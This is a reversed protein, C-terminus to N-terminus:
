PVDLNLQDAMKIDACEKFMTVLEPVNTFKLRTKMRWDSGSPSIEAETSKRTFNGAWADFSNLGTEKLLDSQLYKMTTYMESLANTVPTGTSFVVGKSNTKEDLYQCKMYLDQTKQVDANTSLGSVNEMKTSVYLNKFEHAEDVFLKDVGLEEFTVANDKVTGNTLKELRDRLKAKIAELQKVTYSKSDTENAADLAAMVENIQNRIFEEERKSSLPIKILQSHGIIVADFNGTAIRACMQRRKQPSFDDAKAVLINANPYLKMFDSGIQETLHNPVVFMSKNHLGLRKGEMATAIMEFTKGAGVQHAFLTNGGFLAHAVANKQHPKLTIEPNSGFFNLYSGDYERPRIGNFKENYTKVLENRREPDAFIWKKFAANIQKVKDEAAKTEKELIMTKKSGTVSDSVTETVAVSKANLIKELLEYANYDKTGFNKTSKLSNDLRANKIKWSGKGSGSYNVTIANPNEQAVNSDYEKFRTPTEFLEYMFQQIVKTDIWTMGLQMDIETAKLPKPIVETLAAINDAYEPNESIKAEAQAIKKYINGSLYEDSTQYVTNTETSLEPVPFIDGHLDDVIKNREFGTLQEMYDFDIRGKESMSLILAEHSTEVHEAVKHPRITRETFIETKGIFQGDKLKELSQLLPLRVDNKFANSNQAKRSIGSANKSNPTEIPNIRGFKKVFKDYKLTLEAQLSKIESDPRDEVQAQLLERVTKGMGCMAKRREAVVGHQESEKLPILNDDVRYYLKDDVVTYTLNEIDPTATLYLDTQKEDLEQQFELPVYEGKIHKMANHLQEKLDAGQIPTCVISGFRGNDSLNGLVMDPNDAFYSNIKLGDANEKTHVWDCSKDMPMDSINLPKERKKLFIIDTSTQTGANKQFANNPLRVAGMLEAKQALMQRVKIDEKDLTGTSTIFAVVGGSRVSDLSKAFFYDHILMGSYAKTKDNVGHNGFPVNGVALDFSGKALKIKEFGNIAIDAEPYLKQAIRGSISDIEIGALNSNERMKDPMTGFFNGVGMSPELIEGGKFGINSLGEYIAQTIIPSTYFADNVTSRAAEYEEETLLSKLENFEKRWSAEREDFAEQLGGWGVYKSMIEQEEPTARRDESEIQKLTQIALLNNKFKTKAGGEGLNYDTITFKQPKEPANIESESHLPEDSKAQIVSLIEDDSLSVLDNFDLVSLANKNMEALSNYQENRVVNGDYEYILRFQELDAYVQIPLDHEEDTTYALSIKSIDSFDSPEDFESDLYDTILQKAVDLDTHKNNQAKETLYAEARPLYTELTGTEDAKIPNIDITYGSLKFEEDHIINFLADEKLDSDVEIVVDIDSDANELGRSRSGTVAAGHIDANVGNEEFVKQVFDKVMNEIELPKFNYFKFNEETKARFDTIASPEPISSVISEEEIFDPFDEIDSIDDFLSMQRSVETEKSNLKEIESVDYKDLEIEPEAKSIIEFGKANMEEQWGDYAYVDSTGLLIGGYDPADLDKLSIRKEDIQEVERRKGDYLIVDGVSLDDVTPRSKDANILEHMKEYDEPSMSGDAVYPNFEEDAGKSYNESFPLGQEKAFQRTKEIQQERETLTIDVNEAVVAQIHEKISSDNQFSEWLQSMESVSYGIDRSNSIAETWIRDIGSNVELRYNQEDSNRHANFIKNDESLINSAIEIFESQSLTVENDPSSVSAIISDLAEKQPKSVTITATDGKIVGSFKVGQKELQDAVEAAIDKSIKTYTKEPIYRFTTNGLIIDGNKSRKANEFGDSHEKPQEDPIDASLDSVASVKEPEAAEDKINRLSNGSTDRGGSREQIEGVVPTDSSIQGLSTGGQVRGVTEEERHYEGDAGLSERENGRLTENYGREANDSRDSVTDAMHVENESHRVQGDRSDTETRADRDATRIDSEGRQTQEVRETGRRVRVENRTGSLGSGLDVGRRERGYLEARDERSKSNGSQEQENLDNREIIASLEQGCRNLVIGINAIERVSLNEIGSFRETNESIDLQYQKCFKYEATERFLRKQEDSFSVNDSLRDIVSNLESKFNDKHADPIAVREPEKPFATQSTDFLYTVSQKGSKDRSLVPIGKEYRNVHNGDNTKWEGFQRCDTAKSNRAHIILKSSFEFESQNNNVMVKASFDLFDRWTDASEQVKRIESVYIAQAESLTDNSM